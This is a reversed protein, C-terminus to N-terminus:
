EKYRREEKEQKAITSPKSRLLLKIETVYKLLRNTSHSDERSTDSGEEPQNLATTDTNSDQSLIEIFSLDKNDFISPSLFDEPALTDEKSMLSLKFM